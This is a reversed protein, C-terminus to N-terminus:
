TTQLAQVSLIPFLPQTQSIRQDCEKNTRNSKKDGQGSNLARAAHTGSLKGKLESCKHFGRKRTVAPLNTKTWNKNTEPAQLNNRRESIERLLTSNGNWLHERDKAALYRPGLGPLLDQQVLTAEGTRRGGHLNKETCSKGEVMGSSTAASSPTLSVSKEHGRARKEIAVHLPVCFFKNLLTM